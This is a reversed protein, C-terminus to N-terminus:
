RKFKVPQSKEFTEFMAKLKPSDYDGEEHGVIELDPEEDARIGYVSVFRHGAVMLKGDSVSVPYNTGQSRISGLSIIKGDSDLAFISAAIAELGESEDAGFVEHSVLLVQHGCIDAYAFATTKGFHKAFAEFASNQANCIIGVLVLALSLILKKM